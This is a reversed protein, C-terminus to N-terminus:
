YDLGSAFIMAIWPRRIPILSVPIGTNWNSQDVPSVAFSLFFRQLHVFSSSSLPAFPCPVNRHLEGTILARDTTTQRGFAGTGQTVTMSQSENNLSCCFCWQLMKYPQLLRVRISFNHDTSFSNCYCILRHKYDKNQFWNARLTTDADIRSCHVKTRVFQGNRNKPTHKSAEM